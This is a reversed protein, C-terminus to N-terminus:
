LDEDVKVSAKCRLLPTLREVMTLPFLINLGAIERCTVENLHLIEPIYGPLEILSIAIM